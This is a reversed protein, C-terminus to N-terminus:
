RRGTSGTFATRNSALIDLLVGETASSQAQRISSETVTLPIVRQVSAGHFREISLIAGLRKVVNDALFMHHSRQTTGHKLPARAMRVQEASRAACALGGHRAQQCLRKQALLTRAMKRIAGALVAAENSRTLMRIDILQVCCAVGAHVVDALFDDIAHAIRWYAAAVLDIDDVLNVHQGRRREIRQELRKFLGRLVHDKDHASGVRLLNQLRDERTNLAKVETGDAVVLQQPAQDVYALLLAERKITLRQVEHHQM